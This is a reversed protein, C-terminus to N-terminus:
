GSKPVNAYDRFADIGESDGDTWGSTLGDAAHILPVEVPRINPVKKFIQRSIGAKTLNSFFIPFRVNLGLCIKTNGAVNFQLLLAKQLHFPLLSEPYGHIYVCLM